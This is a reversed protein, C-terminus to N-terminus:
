TRDARWRCSKPDFSTEGIAHLYRGQLESAIRRVAGPGVEAGRAQLEAAIAELFNNRTQPPLPAALNMVVDLEEDTLSLM